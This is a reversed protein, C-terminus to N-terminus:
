SHGSSGVSGRGSADTWGITRLIKSVTPAVAVLNPPRYIRRVDAMQLKSSNSSMGCVGLFVELGDLLMFILNKTKLVLKILTLALNARSHTILCPKSWQATTRSHVLSTDRHAPRRPANTARRCTLSGGAHHPAADVVNHLPRLGRRRPCDGKTFIPILTVMITNMSSVQNGPLSVKRSHKLTSTPAAKHCDSGHTFGWTSLKSGRM